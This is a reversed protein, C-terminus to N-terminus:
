PMPASQTLKGAIDRFWRLAEGRVVRGDNGYFCLEARERSYAIIRGGQIVPVSHTLVSDNGDVIRARLGYRTFRARERTLILRM